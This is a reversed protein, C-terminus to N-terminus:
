VTMYWSSEARYMDPSEDERIKYAELLVFLFLMWLPQHKIRGYPHKKHLGQRFEGTFLQLFVKGAIM